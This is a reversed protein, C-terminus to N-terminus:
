LRDLSYWDGGDVRWRVGTLGSERLKVVGSRLSEGAGLRSFWFTLREAEGVPVRRETTLEADVHGAMRVFEGASGDVFGGTAEVELQRGRDDPGNRGAWAPPLGATGANTLELRGKADVGLRPDAAVVEGRAIRVLEEVGQLSDAEPLRFWTVGRAGADEVREVTM